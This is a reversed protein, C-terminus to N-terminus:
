LLDELISKYGQFCAQTLLDGCVASAVIVHTM